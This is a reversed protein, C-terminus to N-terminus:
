SSKKFHINVKMGRHLDVWPMGSAPAPSQVEMGTNVTSSEPRMERTGRSWGCEGVAQKGLARLESGEGHRQRHQEKHGLGVRELAPEEKDM